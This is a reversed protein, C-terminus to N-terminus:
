DETIFCNRCLTYGESILRETSENTREINNPDAKEAFICGKKHISYSKINILYKCDAKVTVPEFEYPLLETHERWYSEDSFPACLMGEGDTCFVVSSDEDTRFSVAGSQEWRWVAVPTPHGFENGEGCCFVVYGAGVASIFETGSSDDGGHHGAKIVDAHLDSYLHVLERETEYGADAMFLFVRSKYKLRLVACNDNEKELDKRLPFLFEFKTEGFSFSTGLYADKAEIGRESFLTRLRQGEGRTDPKDPMYVTGVTFTDLLKDVGGVHDVHAHTLVLIDIHRYGLEAVYEFVSEARIDSAADIMVCHGDATEVFTCDSQGADIFHVKLLDSQCLVTEPKKCGSFHALLVIFVLILSFLKKM